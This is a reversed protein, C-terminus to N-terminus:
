RNPQIAALYEAVMVGLDTPLSRDSSGWTWSAAWPNNNTSLEKERVVAGTAADVLKMQLSMDSAGAWPGAWFRAAGTVIRLNTVRTKILLTGASKASSGEREASSFIKKANTADLASKECEAVAGPYDKEVQPDYEFKQFVVRDYRKGLPTEKVTVEPATKAAPAATSAAPATTTSAAPATDSKVAQRGRCASLAFMLFLISALLALTTFTSRSRM